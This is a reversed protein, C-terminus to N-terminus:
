SAKGIKRGEDVAFPRQGIQILDPPLMVDIEAGGLGREVGIQGHDAQVGQGQAQFAKGVIGRQGIIQAMLEGMEVVHEIRREAVRRFQFERAQIGGLQPEGALTIPQEPVDGYIPAKGGGAMRGLGAAFRM